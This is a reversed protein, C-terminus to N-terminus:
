PIHLNVAQGGAGSLSMAKGNLRLRVGTASGILINYAKEADFELIDGPEVSFSLSEQDDVIVRLWTSEIAMIELHYGSIEAKELSDFDPTSAVVSMLVGDREEEEGSIFGAFWIGMWSMLFVLFVFFFSGRLWRRIRQRRVARRRAEEAEADWQKRSEKYLFAAHDSNLGVEMAYNRVFGRVFVPEPLAAHDEEELLRLTERGVCLAAELDHLFLGSRLRGNQLYTGFSEERGLSEEGM